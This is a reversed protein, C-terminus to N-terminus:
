QDPTYLNRKKANANKCVRCVRYGRNDVGSYSHGYPCHTKAQQQAARTQGIHKANGRRVNEQHTVAELHSVRVCSPNRCLHDLELGEPVPGWVAEYRVRHAYKYRYDGVYVKGYGESLKGTWVHCPTTMGPMVPGFVINNELNM